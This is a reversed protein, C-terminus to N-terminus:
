IIEVTGDALIKYRGHQGFRTHEEQHCDKCLAELNNWDLTIRPDDITEETIYQKHHVVQAPRYLGRKLCRECLGGKSKLYALRTAQWRKSKYFPEAWPQMYVGYFLVAGM